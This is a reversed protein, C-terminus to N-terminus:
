IKARKEIVPSSSRSSEPSRKKSDQSNSSSSSEEDEQAILALALEKTAKALAKLPDAEQAHLEQVLAKTEDLTLVKQVNSSDILPKLEESPTATIEEAHVVEIHQDKSLYTSSVKYSLNTASQAVETITIGALIKAKLETRKETTELATKVFNVVTAEPMMRIMMSFGFSM